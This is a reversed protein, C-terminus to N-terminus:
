KLIKDKEDLYKMYDNICLQWANVAIGRRVHSKIKLLYYMEDTMYRLYKQKDDPNNEFEKKHTYMAILETKFKILELDM